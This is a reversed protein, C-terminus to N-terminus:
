WGLLATASAVLAIGATETRLIRPGFRIGEWGQCAAQRMEDPSWGGEPGVALNLEQNVAALAAALDRLGEPHCLLTTGQLTNLCQALSTPEHIQMLRNRGCQESASCVISRWHALRKDLRLGALKLVSRDAAVPYLEAVGLEVAKEVVWDMKDGSAIGQILRIHGQLEREVPELDGIHAQVQRGSISLTAPYQGGHGDFLTVAEGDSLRLARRAHHATTEPLEILQQPQLPRPCFFRPAHM